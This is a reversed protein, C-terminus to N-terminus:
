WCKLPSCGASLLLSLPEVGDSSTLFVVVLVVVLVVLFGALTFAETLFSSLLVVLFCCLVHNGIRKPARASEPAPNATANRLLSYIIKEEKM